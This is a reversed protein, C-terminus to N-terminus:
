PKVRYLVSSGRDDLVELRMGPLPSMAATEFRVERTEVGKGAPLTRLVAGRDWPWRTRQDRDLTLGALRFPVNGGLSFGSLSAGPPAKPRLLGPEGDSDVLPYWAGDAATIGIRGRDRPWEVRLAMGDLAVPRNLAVKM